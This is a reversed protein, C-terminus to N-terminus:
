HQAERKDRPIAFQTRNDQAKVIIMAERFLFYFLGFQGGALNGQRYGFGQQQFFGALTDIFQSTEVFDGPSERQVAIGAPGKSLQGFGQGAQHAGFHAEDTQIARGCIFEQRLGRRVTQIIFPHQTENGAGPISVAL